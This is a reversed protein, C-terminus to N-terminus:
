LRAHISWLVGDHYIVQLVVKDAVQAVSVDDGCVFMAMPGPGCVCLEPPQLVVEKEDFDFPVQPLQIVRPPGHLRVHRAM